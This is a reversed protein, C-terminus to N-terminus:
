EVGMTTIARGTAQNTSLISASSDGSIAEPDSPDTPFIEEDQLITGQEVERVIEELIDDVEDTLDEQVAKVEPITTEGFNHLQRGKLYLSDRIKARWRTALMHAGKLALIFIASLLAAPFSMRYIMDAVEEQANRYITNRALAGVSLPAVLATVLIGLVPLIVKRTTIRADPRWWNNRWDNRVASNLAQGLSSTPLMFAARGIIKVYVLGIIWDHVLHITLTYDPSLWVGLPIVVYSELCLGLLTPIIIFLTSFLYTWTLVVSGSKTVVSRIQGPHGSLRKRLAAPTWKSLDLNSLITLLWIALGLAYVGYFYAFLDHCRVKSSMAASIRRGFLLPVITCVVTFAAAFSWMLFLFLHVRLKFHDPVYVVVYDPDDKTDDQDASEILANERTVAMIMDKGNRMPLSDTGPVRRYSGSPLTVQSAIDQEPGLIMRAVYSHRWPRYYEEDKAADGMMFNTLRLLKSTTIFWQTWVAKVKKHPKVYKFTLPLLIQSLLLDFPVEFMPQSTDIHVPTLGRVGYTIAWVVSGFAGVTLVGYILVSVGIKKMQSRVPRELIDKIPNFSPDNPDRIFFLVGPRVIQRCMSVFLAFNFMYVTGVLWHLFLSTFPFQAFFILRDIVSIQHFAPLFVADLLIGCYFPFAVLEIGLIVIFKMVFGAQRLFSRVILEIHKGQEGTTLRKNARLYIAGITTLSCYGCLVVLLRSSISAGSRTIADFVGWSAITSSLMKAHHQLILSAEERRHSLNCFSVCGRQNTLFSSGAAFGRQVVSSVHTVITSRSAIPNTAIKAVGLFFQVARSFETLLTRCIKLPMKVLCERPNAAVFLVVKGVVHPLCIGFVVFATVMVVVIMSSQLLASVPGRVGIVELVGEIDDDVDDRVVNADQNANVVAAQLNRMEDQNIGAAENVAPVDEVNQANRVLPLETGTEVSGQNVNSQVDADGEAAFRAISQLQDFTEQNWDLGNWDLRNGRIQALAQCIERAENAIETRQETTRATSIQEFIKALQELQDSLLFSANPELDQGVSADVTESPSTALDLLSSPIANLIHDAGESAEPASVSTPHSPLRELSALHLEDDMVPDVLVSPMPSDPYEIGTMDGDLEWLKRETSRSRAYRSRANAVSSDGVEEALQIDLENTSKPRTPEHDPLASGSVQELLMLQESRSSTDEIRQTAARLIAQRRLARLEAVTQLSDEEADIHMATEDSDGKALSSEGEHVEQASLTPKMARNHGSARKTNMVAHARLTDWDSGQTVPQRPVLTRPEALDLNTSGTEPLAAVDHPQMPLDIWPEALDAQADHGEINENPEHPVAALRLPEGITEGSPSPPDAAFGPTEDLLNANNQIIWERILFIIVFVVIITSAIVQGEFIETLIKNIAESTTLGNFTFPLFTDFASTTANAELPSERLTQNAQNAFHTTNAITMNAVEYLHASGASTLQDGVRISSRWIHRTCFPLWALWVFAVLLWRLGLAIAAKLDSIVRRLLEAMPLRKPMAPDYLKTFQFPTKCLECHKKQSHDLWEM